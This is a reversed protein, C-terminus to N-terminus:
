VKIIKKWGKDWPIEEWFNEIEEDSLIGDIIIKLELALSDEAEEKSKEESYGDATGTWTFQNYEEEKELRVDLNILLTAFDSDDDYGLDEFYPILEIQKICGPKTLLLAVECMRIADYIGYYDEIYSSFPLSYKKHKHWQINGSSVYQWIQEKKEDCLFRKLYDSLCLTMGEQAEECSKADTYEKSVKLLDFSSYAEETVLSVEINGNIHGEGDDHVIPYLGIREICDPKTRFLEREWLDSLEYLQKNDM